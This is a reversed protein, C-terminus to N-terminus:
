NNLDIEVFSKEIRNANTDNVSNGNTTDDATVEESDGALLPGDTSDIFAQTTATSEEAAVSSDDETTNLSSSSSQGLLPSRSALSTNPSLSDMVQRDSVEETDLPDLQPVEECSEGNDTFAECHTEEREAGVGPERTLSKAMLQARKEHIEDSISELDRLTKSYSTKAELIVTNLSEIRAKIANLETQVTASEEYYPKSKKIASKLQKELTSLRKQEDLYQQICLNHESQSENKLHKAEMFKTNAQNLM